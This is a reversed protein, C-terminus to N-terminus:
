LAAQYRRIGKDLSGDLLFEVLRKDDIKAVFDPREGKGPDPVFPFMGFGALQDAGEGDQGGEGIAKHGPNGM